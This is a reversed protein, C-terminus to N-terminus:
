RDWVYSAIDAGGEYMADRLGHFRVNTARLKHTGGTQDIVVVLRKLPRTGDAFWDLVRRAKPSTAGSRPFELGLPPAGHMFTNSMVDSIGGAAIDPIALLDELSLDGKDQKATAVRLHRLGHDLLNSSVRALADVLHRVRSGNAAIADEDTAWLVDQDPASFGAILLSLLTVVRM